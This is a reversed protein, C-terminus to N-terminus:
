TNNEKNNTAKNDPSMKVDEQITPMINEVMNNIFMTMEQDKVIGSNTSSTSSSKKGEIDMLIYKIKLLLILYFFHAFNSNLNILFKIKKLFCQITIIMQNKNEFGSYCKYNFISFNYM